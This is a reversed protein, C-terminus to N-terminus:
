LEESKYNPWFRYSFIPTESNEDLNLNYISKITRPDIEKEVVGIYVQLVCPVGNVVFDYYIGLSGGDAKINAPKNIDIDKLINGKYFDLFERFTKTVQGKKTKIILSTEMTDPELYQKKVCYDLFDLYNVDGMDGHFIPMKITKGDIIYIINSFKVIFSHTKNFREIAGEKINNISSIERIANKSNCNFLVIM